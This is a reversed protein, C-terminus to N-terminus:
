SLAISLMSTIPGSNIAKQGRLHNKCMKIM